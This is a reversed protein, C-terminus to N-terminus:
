QIQGLAPSPFLPKYIGQDTRYERCADLVRILTQLPIDGEASLRVQDADSFRYQEAIELRGTQPDLQQNRAVPQGVIRTKVDVLKRRLADYDYEGDARKTIAAYNEGETANFISVELASYTVNVRLELLGGTQGGNDGASGGPAGTEQIIPPSYELLALDVFKASGLLLPILVCILNMVPTLNAEAELNQRKKKYSPRFAM